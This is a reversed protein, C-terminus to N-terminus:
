RGRRRPAEPAVTLRGKRDLSLICGALSRRVAGATLRAALLAGYASEVRELRLHGAGPSAARLARILVRIAIEDPEGCLTAFDLVVSGAKSDARRLEVAAQAREAARELAIEARRMRGGLRFVREPTLGEAALATALARWRPRAFRLDRNTPDEAFSWGRARCTAVLAAKRLHLFPRLHEVQGRRTAPAMGALGSPGSGDTLRMLITEVQDDFTHATAIRPAGIAVAHDVLLRYRAERAAEQSVPGPPRDAWALIAHPLDLAAAAVGVAEAEARAEPRLGHDVTAVRLSLGGSARGWHAAAQMLATSDPGGSVALLIASGDGRFDEATFVEDFDDDTLPQGPDAPPAQGDKSM